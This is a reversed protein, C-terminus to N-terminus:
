IFGKQDTHIIYKLIPKLREAITKAIIKYDSNLLTIPRWNAIDEREGSKYLLHILGKTQSTSLNNEKFIDEVM